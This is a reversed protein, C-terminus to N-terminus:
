RRPGVRSALTWDIGGARWAWDSGLGRSGFRAGDVDFRQLSYVVQGHPIRM